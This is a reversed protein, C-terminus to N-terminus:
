LGARSCIYNLLLCYKSLPLRYAPKPGGINIKEEGLDGREWGSQFGQVGSGTHSISRSPNQDLHQSKCFVWLFIQPLPVKKGM